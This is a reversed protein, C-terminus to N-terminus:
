DSQKRLLQLLAERIVKSRWCYIIPNYLSNFIVFSFTLPWPIISLRHPLFGASLTSLRFAVVRTLGPLYCMFLVGIIISTTEWAKKEKAFKTKEEESVQQSQIQIMHRRCVIYVSLHCFIIVLLTVTTTVAPLETVGPITRSLFYVMISFLWSCAVATFLRFRNVISEYRLSYKMAFFRDVSILMLHFLSALGFCNIAVKTISLMNCFVSRPGNTLRYIEQAIFAPQAVIGVMLDTGALCALLMYHNTQLRRHKKVTAIVLANGIIILPCTILNLTIGLVSLFYDATIYEDDPVDSRFCATKSAKSSHNTSNM